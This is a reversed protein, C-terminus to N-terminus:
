ISRVIVAASQGMNTRNVSLATSNRLALPQDHVVNLRCLPDPTEYNLTMPLNGKRLSLISGALEVAGALSLPGESALVEALSKGEIYEMVLYPPITNVNFEFVTVLNPHKLRSITQAEQQFRPLDQTTHGSQLPMMKIAVNRGLSLDRAQYVVSMGGIGLRKLIGYKGDLIEGVLSDAVAAMPPEDSSGTRAQSKGTVDQASPPPGARPTKDEEISFENEEPEM